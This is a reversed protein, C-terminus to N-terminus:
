SPPPDPSSPKWPPLWTHAPAVRTTWEMTFSGSFAYDHPAPCLGARVPNLWIYWAIPEPSERPRLVHDFFFRQWLQARAQQRYLFGSRQKFSKIFRSLDCLPEIAELLVHLHDPMLCYAHVAFSHRASDARLIDLVQGAIAHSHFIPRRDACCTTVFFWGRGDYNFRDLRISKREVAM